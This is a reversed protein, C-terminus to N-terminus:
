CEPRQMGRQWVVLFDWTAERDLLEVMAVGAVPFHKLHSPVLAVAGESVTLTFMNAVSVTEQVFKPRFGARRCWNGKQCDHGLEGAPYSQNKAQKGTQRVLDLVECGGSGL